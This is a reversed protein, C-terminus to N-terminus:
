GSLEGAHCPCGCTAGCSAGQCGRIHGEAARLEDNLAAVASRPHLLFGAERLKARTADMDVDPLYYHMPDIKVMPIKEGERGMSIEKEIRVTAKIEKNFWHGSSSRGERGTLLFEAERLVKRTKDMDANPVYYRGMSVEGEIWVTAKIEQESSM